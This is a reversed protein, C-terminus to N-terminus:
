QPFSSFQQGVIRWEGGDKVLIIMDRGKAEVAEGEWLYSLDYYYTVVAFRDDGYLQVKPSNEKLSTVEAGDIFEKYNAVVANIGDVREREGPSILVVKEHFHDALRELDEDVAWCRNMSRVRDWVEGTIEVRNLPNDAEIEGKMHAVCGTLSIFGAISATMWLVWKRFSLRHCIKM